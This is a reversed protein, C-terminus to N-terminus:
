VKVREGEMTEGTCTVGGQAIPRALARRGLRGPLEPFMYELLMEALGWLIRVEGSREREAMEGEMPSMGVMWVTKPEREPLRGGVTEVYPLAAERGFPAEPGAKRCATTGADVEWGGM